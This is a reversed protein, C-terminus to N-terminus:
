AAKECSICGKARRKAGRGCDCHGEPKVKSQPRRFVSSILSFISLPDPFWVVPSVGMICPFDPPLISPPKEREHCEYCGLDCVWLRWVGVLCRIIWAVCLSVLSSSVLVFVVQFSVLVYCLLWGLSCFRVKVRCSATGQAVELVGALGSLRKM